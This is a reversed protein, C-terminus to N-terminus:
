AGEAFPIGGLVSVTLRAHESERLPDAATGEGTWYPSQEFRESLGGEPKQVGVMTMAIDCFRVYDDTREDMGDVFGCLLVKLASKSAVVTGAHKGGPCRKTKAAM